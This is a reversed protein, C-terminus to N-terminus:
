LKQEVHSFTQNSFKRFHFEFTECHFSLARTVDHLLKREKSLERHHQNSFKRFHSEHTECQFSLGHGTMCFNDKKQRNETIGTLDIVEGCRILDM